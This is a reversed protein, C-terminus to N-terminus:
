PLYKNRFHVGSLAIIPYCILESWVLDETQIDTPDLDYDFKIKTFDPRSSIILCSTM